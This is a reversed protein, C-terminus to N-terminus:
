LEIIIQRFFNMCDNLKNESRIKSPNLECLYGDDTIRVGKSSTLSKNFKVKVKEPGALEQLEEKIPQLDIKM